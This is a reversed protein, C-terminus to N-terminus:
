FSTVTVPRRLPGTSSLFRQTKGSFWQSGNVRGLGADVLKSSNVNRIKFYGEATAEFTFQQASNNYWPAQQIRTGNATGFNYVDLVQSSHRAVLRYTTGAVPFRSVLAPKPSRGGARFESATAFGGAATNVLLRVFGVNRPAWLAVKTKRDSAWTGAAVQTFSTGDVSTLVTYSTVDGDSSNNRGWQKPLYELTSINSWVGGLDLTISQPLALGATSFLTEYNNNSRGDIALRPYASGQWGTAYAAVATIPWEPRVPQAPLAARSTNPNWSNGVEVLRNYINTDLAGSRNPPCNLLFSTYKPELDALHTLIASLTMPDTTPTNPHWFWGPSITQGQLSAYANGLPSTIGFPEEFYLADGIFPETIAGHDVMVTDPQLSKVLERVRQNSVAQQGMQWSWGDTIFVDITGYNTLLERVQNLILDMGATSIGGADDIGYTRDWISFYLGVRLGRARFADVYQRVIDQRYGSNAVTYSTYASPWLCFGDHHKTTLVGFKMKARFAADAWQACDVVSPAFTAPNLNPTAWEEDTFTSMNFHNFMGFRLNALNALNTQLPAAQAESALGHFGPLEPLTSILATAAATVLFNRRSLDPIAM